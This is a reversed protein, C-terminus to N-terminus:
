IQPLTSSAMIYGNSTGTTVSTEATLMNNSDVNHTKLVFEGLGTPKVDEISLTATDNPQFGVQFTTDLLVM